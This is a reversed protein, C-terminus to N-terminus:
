VITNVCSYTYVLLSLQLFGESSKYTDQWNAGM